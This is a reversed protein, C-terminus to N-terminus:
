SLPRIRKTKIISKNDNNRQAYTSASRRALQKPSGRPSYLSSCCYYYYYYYYYLIMM